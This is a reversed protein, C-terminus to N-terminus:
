GHHRLCRFSTETSAHVLEVGSGTAAHTRAPQAPSSIMGQLVVLHLQHQKFLLVLLSQHHGPLLLVLDCSVTVGIPRTIM